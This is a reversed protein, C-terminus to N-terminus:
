PNLMLSLISLFGALSIPLLAFAYGIYAPFKSKVKLAKRAVMAKHLRYTGFFSVAIWLSITLYIAATNGNHIVATAAYLFGFHLAVLNSLIKNPASSQM